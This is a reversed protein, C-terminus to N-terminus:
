AHGTFLGVEEAKDQTLEKSTSMTILCDGYASASYLREWCREPPTEFSQVNDVDEPFHIREPIWGTLSFLDVGSNSGPFDYGGCIKMYAKELLSVWLELGATTSTHSCLLNGRSDIPFLDDVLVRREVGNLWLKVMYVGHPNYLPMGNKDQPHILSSVLRRRFRREYAASICLGAIFSCDSVCYQKITYPTISQILKINSSSLGRMEAIEHPRAWKSFAIEQKKSLKLLGDPDSWRAGNLNSPSFNFTKVDNDSWPLALVSALRSSRKLVAIEHPTLSTQAITTESSNTEASVIGSGAGRRNKLEEVRDLAGKVKRKLSVVLDRHVDAYSEEQKREQSTGEKAGDDTGGKSLLKIADLYHQVSQLYLQIVDDDCKGGIEDNDIATTLLRGAKSAHQTAVKEINDIHLSRSSAVTNLGSPRISQSNHAIIEWNSSSSSSTSQRLRANERNQEQKQREEMMKSRTRLHEAKLEYKDIKDVLLARMRSAEENNQSRLVTRMHNKLLFCGEHYKNAAQEPDDQELGDAEKLRAFAQDILSEEKSRAM